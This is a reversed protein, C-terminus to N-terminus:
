TDRYDRGNEWPRGHASLYRDSHIRNYGLESRPYPPINEAPYGIAILSLVSISEPISLIHRVSQEASMSSDHRRNRIQIWCAGLDLSQAALLMASAAISADEIWADSKQTDACVAVVVGAGAAFDSGREKSHSLQQILAQDQVVVFEWPRIGRSSPSRLAAEVILDIKETEVTRDQYRRISRRGRALQIFENVM